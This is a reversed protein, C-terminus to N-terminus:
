IMVTYMELKRPWAATWWGAGPAEYVALGLGRKKPASGERWVNFVM